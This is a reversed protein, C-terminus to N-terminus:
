GALGTFNSVAMAIEHALGRKALDRERELENRESATLRAEPLGFRQDVQQLRVAEVRKIQTHCLSRLAVLAAMLSDRPAGPAGNALCARLRRELLEENSLGGQASVPTVATAILLGSLVLSRLM